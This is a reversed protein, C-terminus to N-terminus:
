DRRGAAVTEVEGLARARKSPTVYVSAQVLNCDEYANCVDDAFVRASRAYERGLLLAVGGVLVWARTEVHVHVPTEAAEPRAHGLM